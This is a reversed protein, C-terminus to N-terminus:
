LSVDNRRKAPHPAAPKPTASFAPAQARARVIIGTNFEVVKQRVDAFNRSAIAPSYLKGAYTLVHTEQEVCESRAAVAISYPEGAQAALRRSALANCDYYAQLTPEWLEFKNVQPACASLLSAAIALTLTYRM